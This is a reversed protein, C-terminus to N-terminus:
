PAKVGLETAARAHFKAVRERPNRRVSTVTEGLTVRGDGYDRAVLAISVLDDRWCVVVNRGDALTHSSNPTNM